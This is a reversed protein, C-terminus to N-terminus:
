IAYRLNSNIETTMEAPQPKGRAMSLNEEYYNIEYDKKYEQFNKNKALKMSFSIENRGSKPYNCQM